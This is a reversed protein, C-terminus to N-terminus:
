KPIVLYETGQTNRRRVIGEMNALVRGFANVSCRPLASGAHRKVIGLIATPTSGIYKAAYVMMVLAMIAPVVALWSVWLWARPTPPLMLPQGSFLAFLAM